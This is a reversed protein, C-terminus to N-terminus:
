CAGRRRLVAWPTRLLITLDLSLSWSDIYLLDLEVWKEFGIDNRGGIQWLCTLGPRM